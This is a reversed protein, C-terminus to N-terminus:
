KLITALATLLRVCDDQEHGASLSIRLRAQSRKVTPYRIAPVLLGRELLAASLQTARREDGAM